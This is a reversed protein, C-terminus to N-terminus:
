NNPQKMIREDQLVLDSKKISFDIMEEIHTRLNKTLRNYGFANALLRVAEEHEVSTGEEVIHTLCHLYELWHIEHYTRETSDSTRYISFNKKQDQDSWVVDNFLDDTWSSRSLRKLPILKYLFDWNKQNNQKGWIACVTNALRKFPIPAEVECIADITAILNDELDHIKQKSSQKRDWPHSTSPFVQFSWYPQDKDFPIFKSFKENETDIREEDSNSEREPYEHQTKKETSPLAKGEMINQIKKLIAEKEDVWSPLWIRVVNKWGLAKLMTRPLLERQTASGREAWDPGDLLIALEFNDTNPQSVAIDVRLKSLGIQTEAEYGMARIADAIQAIHTSRNVNIGIDGSAKPGNKVLKLFKQVLVINENSSPTIGLDDPEFSCFVMMERKARTVAVNLRRYGGPKTVPGWNTPVKPDDPKPYGAGAKTFATTFIVTDAEDGQVHELNIIKLQPREVLVGIDEDYKEETAATYIGAHQNDADRKRLLEVILDRQQKNFTVVIMSEAGDKAGEIRRQIRVPDTLRDWVENVVAEAELPNTGKLTGVLDKARLAAEKQNPALKDIDTKDRHFQGGLVPCWKLATSGSGSVSPFTMMPHSKYIENNSFAILAEDKSRYHCQLQMFPLRSDAFEELISEADPASQAYKVLPDDPDIVADYENELDDEIERGKNSAFASPPPMQKTDGVVINAKGRGLAGVAHSTPIQSAEDFIVLDFEIAGVPILNAVSSPSMLFCPMVKALSDGYKEILDRIPKRANKRRQKLEGALASGEGFQSNGFPLSSKRAAILGPVRDVMLERLEQQLKELRDIHQDHISGDFIDLDGSERRETIIKRLLGRIVQQELQEIPIEAQLINGRLTHFGIEELKELSALLNAWRNLNLYRNNEGRDHIWAELDREWADLFSENTVWRRASEPTVSLNTTLDIWKNNINEIVNRPLQEITASQQIESIFSKLGDSSTKDSTALVLLSGFFADAVSAGDQGFFISKQPVAIGIENKIKDMINEIRPLTEVYQVMAQYTAKNDQTKVNDNLATHLKKRAGGRTFLNAKTVTETLTILNKADERDVLQEHLVNFITESDKQLGEMDQRIEHVATKWTESGMFALEDSTPLLNLDALRLANVADNIETPGYVDKLHSWKGSLQKFDELSSALSDIVTNLQSRDLEDFTMEEIFRWPNKHVGGAMQILQPLDAAVERFVPWRTEYENLFGPPPPIEEGEGIDLLDNYATWMTQGSKNESHVADKYTDLANEEHSSKFMLDDWDRDRKEATAEAAEAIQALINQRIRTDSDGKAHLELCFNGLGVEYLREKVQQLAVSKEAVFLIKKENALCSAILNTITQTKGTGPPGELRFSRGELAWQIAEMQSDDSPHPCHPIAKEDSTEIKEEYPENPTYVMHHVAPSTEAMGKWHERIDRWLLFNSYDFVGLSCRNEVTINLQNNEIKEKIRAINLEVDIGSNDLVPEELEPLDLLTPERLLKERLSYNPTITGHQDLRITYPSGRGGELIVPYLYLPACWSSKSSTGRFDSEEDWSLMGLTLFLANGGSLLMQDKAESDLKSFAKRQSIGWHDTLVVQALEAARKKGYNEDEKSIKYDREEENTLAEGKDLKEEIFNIKEQIQKSFQKTLVPWDEIEKYSPFMLASGLNEAEKVFESTTIGSDWYSRPLAAPSNIALKKGDFLADDIAGLTGPPLEFEILGKRGKGTRKNITVKLLPNRASMDLLGALWQRVRPPRRESDAVLREKDESAAIASEFLNKVQEDIYDESALESPEGYDVDTIQQAPILSVRGYRWAPKIFVLSRTGDKSSDLLNDEGMKQADRFSSSGGAVCRTTEIPQIMETLLRKITQQDDEYIMQLDRNSLDHHISYGVYAHGRDRIIIPSLHAEALCAAFLVSTDLCTGSKDEVLIDDPTRVRQISRNWDILEEYSYHIQRSFIADYIAEAIQDVRKWEEPHTYRSGPLGTVTDGIEDGSLRGHGTEKALKERVEHMIEQVAKSSPLVFGAIAEPYTRDMLYDKPSLLLVDQTQTVLVQDNDDIIEVIVNGTRMETLNGLAANNVRIEPRDWTISHNNIPDFPPIPRQNGVWIQSVESIGPAELRVRPRVNRGVSANDGTNTLTIDRVVPRGM